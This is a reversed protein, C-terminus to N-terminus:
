YEYKDYKKEIDIDLLISVAKIIKVQTNKAQGNLANYVATIAEKQKEIEPREDVVEEPLRNAKAM